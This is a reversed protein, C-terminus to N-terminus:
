FVYFKQENDNLHVANKQCGKCLRIVAIKGNEGSLDVLKKQFAKFAYREVEVAFVSKQLRIGMTLLYRAIRNRTRNDQIDYAVICTM